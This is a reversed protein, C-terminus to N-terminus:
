VAPFVAVGRSASGIADHASYLRCEVEREVRAARIGIRDVPAEPGKFIDFRWQPIGSPSDAVLSQRPKRNPFLNEPDLEPLAEFQLWALSGDVGGCSPFVKRLQDFV